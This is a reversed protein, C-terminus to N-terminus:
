VIVQALKPPKSMSAEDFRRSAECKEDQDRTPARIAAKGPRATAVIELPVVAAKWSMPPSSFLQFAWLNNSTTCAWAAARFRTRLLESWSKLRACIEVITLSIELIELNSISSVSGDESPTSFM